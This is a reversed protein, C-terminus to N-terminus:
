QIDQMMKQSVSNSDLIYKSYWTWASNFKQFPLLKTNSRNTFSTRSKRNQDFSLFEISITSLCWEVDVKSVVFVIFVRCIPVMM